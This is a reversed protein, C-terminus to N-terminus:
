RSRTPLFKDPTQDALGGSLELCGERCQILCPGFGGPLSLRELLRTQLVFTSKPIMQRLRLQALDFRFASQFFRPGPEM